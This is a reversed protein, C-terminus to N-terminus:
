YNLNQFGQKKKIVSYTQNLEKDLAACNVPERNALDKRSM